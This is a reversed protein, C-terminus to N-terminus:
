EQPALIGMHFFTVGVSALSDHKNGDQDWTIVKWYYKTNGKLASGQYEIQNSQDSDNKQSDWCNGEEKKLIDLSDSVFIQYSTQIENKKSEDDIAYAWSFRPKLVDLGLPNILYEVRPNILKM